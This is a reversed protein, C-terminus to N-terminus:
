DSKNGFDNNRMLQLQVQKTELDLSNFNLSIIKSNNNYTLSYSIGLDKLQDYIQGPSSTDDLNIECEQIASDCFPIIRNFSAIIDGNIDIMVLNYLIDDKVLHLVTQGNSDTIPIEVIRFEADQVYQRQVQVLINERPILNSDRFTLRFSTSDISLLSYLNIQNNSTKNSLTSNLLNFYEVEYGTSQNSTYKATLDVSYNTSGLLINNLCLTFPNRTFNSGAFLQSYNFVNTTRSVDWIDIQLEASNNELKTKKEEDFQTFNYIVNTFSSCDDVSINLM